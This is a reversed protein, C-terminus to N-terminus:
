LGEISFEGLVTDLGDLTDLWTRVGQRAAGPRWHRKLRALVYAPDRILQPVCVRGERKAHIRMYQLALLPIKREGFEAGFPGIRGRSSDFCILSDRLRKFSNTPRWPSSGQVMPNFARCLKM